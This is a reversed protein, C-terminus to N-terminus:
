MEIPIIEESWEGVNVQWGGDDPQPAITPIEIPEDAFGNNYGININFNITHDKEFLEIHNDLSRTTSYTSGDPLIARFDMEYGSHTASGTDHIGFSHFKGILHGDTTSGADFERDYYTVKHTIARNIPSGDCLHVGYAFGTIFAGSSLVNDLGHVAVRVNVEYVLPTPNVNITLIPMFARTEAPQSAASKTNAKTRARTIDRTLTVMEETVEFNPITASALMDPEEFVEYGSRVFSSSSLVASIDRFSNRSVFEIYDFDEFTENFVIVDYTGLELNVTVTDSHSLKVVPGGGSQPFFMVTQGNPHATLGSRSWSTIINVEATDIYDYDLPRLQCGSILLVLVAM